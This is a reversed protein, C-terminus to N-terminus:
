TDAALVRLSMGDVATVRVRTGTPLDPGQVAWFADDIKVRGRGDIIASELPLVRGVLQDARRNLLPQDSAGPPHRRRLYWGIGVAVLSLMAFVFWQATPDLGPLVFHVIGTGIAAFGLWLMFTGPLIAEAAFLLVAVAWWFWNSDMWDM